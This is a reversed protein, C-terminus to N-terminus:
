RHCLFTNLIVYANFAAPGEGRQIHLRSKIIWAPAKDAANRAHAFLSDLLSVAQDIRGQQWCIEAAQTHIELTEEYYVDPAGEKWPDPQMLKLCTEYYLLTTPRAGSDNANRAAQSLLDRFRKRHSIRQKIPGAAECIHRARTYLSRDDLDPYKMMTQAIIFHMKEVQRAEALSTAAQVYRDHSFRAPDVKDDINELADISM